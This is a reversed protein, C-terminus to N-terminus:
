QGNAHLVGKAHGWSWAAAPTISFDFDGAAAGPASAFAMPTTGAASKFGWLWTGTVNCAHASARQRPVYAPATFAGGGTITLEAQASFWRRTAPPVTRGLPTLRMTPATPGGVAFGLVLCGLPVCLLPPVAGHLLRPM